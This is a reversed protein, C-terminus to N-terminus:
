MLDTDLFMMHTAGSALFHALLRSRTQGIMAEFLIPYIEVRTNQLAWLGHFLSQMTPIWIQGTYGPIAVFLHNM